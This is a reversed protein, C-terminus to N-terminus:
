FEFLDSFAVEVFFLKFHIRSSLMNSMISQTESDIHSSMMLARNTGSSLQEPLPEPRPRIWLNDCFLRDTVKVEITMRKSKNDMTLM